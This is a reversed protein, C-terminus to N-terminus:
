CTLDPFSQSSPSDVTMFASIFINILYEFIKMVEKLLGVKARHTFFLIGIFENKKLINFILGKNELPIKNTFNHTESYTETSKLEAGFM